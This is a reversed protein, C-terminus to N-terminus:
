QGVGALMETIDKVLIQLDAKIEGLDRPPIYQYFHRTFPIEYGIKTKDHDIWADPVHPLVERAFYEEIDETLPVNETDRLAPDPEPNGKSDTCIVANDDHEGISSWLAKILPSGPKIIGAQRLADKLEGVFADRDNWVGGILGTLANRIAAQEGSKLKEIPKQALVGDVTDSTLEFRLQLPREVTITAYGFDANDFVKSLAPKDADGQDNVQEIYLEAITAIDDPRLEKRKSGLSKRMKGFMSSGDILQVKNKRDSPKDNDLIWIYTSIGTNYFMDVPLAVITDLLDNEIIWRRINSEGSGAGGTFLPSGNLVMALRSGGDRPARMKSILHMLFLLSGDSVRPLGPGFRGAHGRQDHEDTVAKQASKWEVGFPPNSLLYDFTNGSYRDDTLTNGLYINDIDQGKIIMDSKCMAYSRANIEQGYMVLRAKPNMDHLHEDAVSLMGGTGAAPDYITRVIGAKTLVEDDNQFLLEVMLRIVERPTFHDGAQANNSEAFKRILEEFIYGMDHASVMKPHLDVNAFERVILFLLNKKDLDAILSDMGFGDFVDGVNSSFGAIYDILNDALGEPDAALKAFDWMSTNYFSYGSKATLFPKLAVGSQKRKEFETLVAAKTPDLICDLRRLITLPLIVDGYQNPQFPGRMLNAISWILAANTKAM